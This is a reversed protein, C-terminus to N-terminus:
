VSTSLRAESERKVWRLIVGEPNAMQTTIRQQTTSAVMYTRERAQEMTELEGNEKPMCVPEASVRSFIRVMAAVFEVEAMKMGPCIRPGGSFPLYTGKEPTIHVEQGPKGPNHEPSQSIWRGPRFDHSDPGWISKRYQTALHNIYVNAPGALFHSKGSELHVNVGPAPLHRSLHPQPPILRLVELMIALCRPLKPFLSAYDQIDAGPQGLVSDIEEQMWVQWEPFAALFSVAFGLANATTDYGAATFVFLNGMIEDETLYLGGTEKSTERGMKSDDSMRILMSMFNERGGSGHVEKRREEIMDKCLNPLKDMAIGLVQLMNPMFSMKLLWSSLTVCVIILEGCLGVADVYTMKAAAEQDRPLGRLQFPRSEGYGVQGLVNKAISRACEINQDSVGEANGGVGKVGDLKSSLLLDVMQSTQEMTSGWVEGMIRENLNPVVLRRQRAWVDGDSALINSGFTQMVRITAQSQPFDRRRSLIINSLEPDSCWVENVDPTCLIFTEGHTDHVTTKDIMEWGFISPRIGSFMPGLYKELYPRLPVKLIMYPMLEPSFPCVLVPLGSKKAARYNHFLSWAWSLIMYSPWALIALLIIGM